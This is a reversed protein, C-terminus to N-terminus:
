KYLKQISTLWHLQSLKVVSFHVSPYLSLYFRVYFIHQIACHATLSAQVNPVFFMNTIKIFFSLRLIKQM